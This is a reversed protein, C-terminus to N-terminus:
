RAEGPPAHCSSALRPSAIPALAHHAHSYDMLIRSLAEYAWLRRKGNIKVILRYRIHKSLSLDILNRSATVRSLDERYIRAAAMSSAVVFSWSGGVCRPKQRRQQQAVLVVEDREDVHMQSRSLLDRSGDDEVIRCRSLAFLTKPFRDDRSSARKKLNKMM